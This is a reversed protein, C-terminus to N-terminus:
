TELEIAPSAPPQSRVASAQPKEQWVVQVQPEEQWVVQVSMDATAQKPTKYGATWDQGTRDQIQQQGQFFAKSPYM